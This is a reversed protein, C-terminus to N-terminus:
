RGSPGGTIAANIQAQSLDRILFLSFPSVALQSAYKQSLFGAFEPNPTVYTQFFASALGQVMPHALEPNPGILDDPVPFVGAESTGLVSFHTGLNMVALYKDPTTLWTFPIFQEELPPAFIDESGAIIMLPIKIQSIGAQGFIASGIPNIAVAAKVRDDRLNVTNPEAALIRCQLLISLNFTFDRPQNSSRRDCEQRVGSWDIPAGAVALATYGGMSHGILGVQNLNINWDPTAGKALADLFYKIDLPRNVLDSPIVRYDIETGALFSQFRQSDSGPHTISAVPFGQSAFHEALYTFTLRDSALGHSIVILPTPKNLGQPLYIDVPIPTSDRNPNVFSITRKTWTYTGKAAPNPLNNPIAPSRSAQASQALAAVVRNQNETVRVFAQLAQFGLQGEIQITTDPFSRIVNLVSIGGPEKAARVFAERLANAGNQGSSTRLVLGVRQFLMQGLPSNVADSVTKPSLDMNEGLAAQLQAQKDAPILRIFRELEPSPSGSSAFTELDKVTLVFNGIPPFSLTITEAALGPAAGLGALIALASITEQLSRRMIGKFRGLM